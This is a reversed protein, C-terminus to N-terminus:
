FTVRPLAPLVLRRIGHHVVHVRAAEVGLLWFWSEDSTRYVNIMPNSQQTRPASDTAATM